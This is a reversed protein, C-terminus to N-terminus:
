QAPLLTHSELTRTTLQEEGKDEVEEITMYFRVKKKERMPREGEQPTTEM